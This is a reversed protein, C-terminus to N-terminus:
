TISTTRFRLRSAASTILPGYPVDHIFFQSLYPGALDGPLTGRFLTKSTVQGSAPDRPGPFSSFNNMDKAAADVTADSDYDVFPIDRCLALWYNEAIEAITEASNFPACPPTALQHSDIGELDYALGSQPDTLKVFNESVGAPIAEFDEPRGSELADLLARYAEPEVEGNKDHPLGKSYNAYYNKKQYKREDGNNQHPPISHKRYHDAIGTRLQYSARRRADPSLPGLAGSKTTKM